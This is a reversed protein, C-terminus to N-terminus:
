LRNSGYSDLHLWSTPRRPYTYSANWRPIEREYFGINTHPETNFVFSIHLNLVCYQPIIAIGVKVSIIFLDVDYATENQPDHWVTRKEM